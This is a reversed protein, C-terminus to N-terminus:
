KDKCSRSTPKGVNGTQIAFTANDTVVLTKSHLDPYPSPPIDADPTTVVQV